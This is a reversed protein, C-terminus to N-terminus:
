DFARSNWSDLRADIKAFINKTGTVLRVCKLIVMHFVIVRENSWKWGQIGDLEAALTLVFRTGFTWIDRRLIPHSFLCTKEM